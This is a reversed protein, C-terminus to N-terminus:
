KLAAQATLSAEDFGRSLQRAYDFTVHQKATGSIADHHQLVGMAERLVDLNGGASDGVNSLVALQKAM